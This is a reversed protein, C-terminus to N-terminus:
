RSVPIEVRKIHLLRSRQFGAQAIYLPANYLNSSTTLVSGDLTYHIVADAPSATMTIETGLELNGNDPMIVLNSVSNPYNVGFTKGTILIWGLDERYAGARITVENMLPPLIDQLFFPVTYLPSELTSESEDLTYHIQAGYTSSSLKISQELTCIGEGPTFVVPEITEPGTNDSCAGIMVMLFLLGITIRRM